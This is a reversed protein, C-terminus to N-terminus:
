KTETVSPHILSKKLTDGQWQGGVVAFFCTNLFFLHITPHIQQSSVADLADTCHGEGKFASPRWCESGPAGPCRLEPSREEASCAARM